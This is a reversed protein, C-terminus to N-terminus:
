HRLPRSLLLRAITDVDRARRLNYLTGQYMLDTLVGKDSEALDVVEKLPCSFRVYSAGLTRCWVRAREVEEGDSRTCQGIFLQLIHSLGSFTKLLEPIRERMNHLNPVLIGVNDVKSTPVVGTGISVVLGIRAVRGEREGQKFIEVMTDRTPNNAMVGGDIFKDSYQPFYFPAASTARGVEWVKWEHPPKQGNRAEGYNCMLHLVPPNRDAMVTTMVLRPAKIDTICKESGFTQKTTQDVLVTNFTPRM